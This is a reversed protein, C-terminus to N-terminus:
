RAGELRVAQGEILRQAGPVLVTENGALGKVIEVRAGDEFGTEVARKRVVGQELTFISRGAKEVVVAALPLTWVDDHRDVGIRATVYMGPRLLLDPNEVSAEVLMTQSTPDLAYAHRAVATEFRREGLVDVTFTFPQGTRVLSAEREPVPVQVRVTEFDMLTLIAAGDAGADRRSAATAAPIFAGPDVFRATVIGDFPATIRAYGLLTRTRQVEARAIEVRGRADDVSQPVVLDPAKALAESVRELEREAVSREAQFRALDASLEPVEIRALTQGQKVRDGKDVALEALYGSVKAHLTARRNAHIRGPLTVFRTISARNPRVSAVVADQSGLAVPRAADDAISGDAPGPADAADAADARATGAGSPRAMWEPSAGGALVLLLALGLGTSFSLPRTRRM